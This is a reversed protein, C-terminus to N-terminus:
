RTTCHQQRSRTPTSTSCVWTSTTTTTARRTTAPTTRSAPAAATSRQRSPLRSAGRDPSCAVSCYGSASSSRTASSFEIPTPESALGRDAYFDTFFDEIAASGEPAITGFESGDGDYVFRVPNPSGIMDFNLYLAIADRQDQPLTSVYYASGVTGLEEAGWWAFRVRNTPRVHKMDEAVELLTGAGSGNDNIGPGLPVSDLHAGVIVVNDDRGTDSEALVNWTTTPSRESNAFIPLTLGSRQALEAGVRYSAAM